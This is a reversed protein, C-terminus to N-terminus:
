EDSSETWGHLRATTEAKRTMLAAGWCAAARRVDDPIDEWRRSRVLATHIWEAIPQAPDVDITVADIQPDYSVEWGDGTWSHLRQEPKRQTTM